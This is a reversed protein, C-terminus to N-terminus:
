PLGVARKITAALWEAELKDRVSRGATLKKGGKQIVAIDYYVRSGARMGISVSVGAVDVAAISRERGPSLYGTAVNLTHSDAAVRSVGLWLDLAAILILIGFLGTVIPFFRPAGVYLQVVITGCWLLLFCSLSLAAGPNRAAPFLIETGRRNWTVIIRSDRPQQYDALSPTVETLQRESDSIPQDSESTRFVPVEFASEYDVGPMSASLQLRWFVRNGSASADCSEAHTPIRFAVPVHTEMGSSTRSPQGQVRREEQWLITESTSRNKGGGTTVRRMCSLTVQFGEAPQVSAPARVAGKFIHGIVAPVTSLELRSIGYKRYRLTARVAWVLLGIGVLPFLLAILGAYNREEIAARAGVYGAPFSVLNWFAAFAWTSWMTARSSDDIRGSAWDDRWLWPEGPHIAERVARRKQNRSGVLLAILGGFGVGGFVLAFLGLFLADRMSGQKAKELAQWAAVVGVAGFPLLFLAVCGFGALMSWRPSAASPSAGSRAVMGISM